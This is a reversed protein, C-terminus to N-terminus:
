GDFLGNRHGLLGALCILTTLRNQLQGIIVTDLHGDGVFDNLDEMM